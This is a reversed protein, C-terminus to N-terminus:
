EPIWLDALKLESKTSIFRKPRGLRTLLRESSKEKFQRQVISKRQKVENLLFIEKELVLNLEAIYAGDSHLEKLRLMEERKWHKLAAYVQDFEEKATPEMYLLRLVRNYDANNTDYNTREKAKEQIVRWQQASERILKRWKYARFNRQIVKVRKLKDLRGVMEDSSVFERIENRPTMRTTRLSKMLHAETQTERSLVLNRGPRPMPGTQTCAHHFEIKTGPDRYGGLFPKRIRRNEIEVILKRDTRQGDGEEGLNVTIIEPLTFHSYYVNLDLKARAQQGRENVRLQLEVIGFQNRPLDNLKVREDSLLEEDQDLIDLWSHNIVKFKGAIDRKMDGLTTQTRKYSHAIIQTDTIQFKVTLNENSSYAVSKEEESDKETTKVPSFQIKKISM